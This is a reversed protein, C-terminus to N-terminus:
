MKTRPGERACTSDKEDKTLTKLDIDHAIIRQSIIPHEPAPPRPAHMCASMRALSTHALHAHLSM